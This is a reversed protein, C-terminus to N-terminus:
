LPRRRGKPIRVSVKSIDRNEGKKRCTRVM